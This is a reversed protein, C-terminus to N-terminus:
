FMLFSMSFTGGVVGSNRGIDNSDECVDVLDSKEKEDCSSKSVNCTGHPVSGGSIDGVVFCNDNLEDVGNSSDDAIYGSSHSTDSSEDTKENAIKNQYTTLAEFVLMNLYDREAMKQM